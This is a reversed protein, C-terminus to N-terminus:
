SLPILEGILGSSTLYYHAIYNARCYIRGAICIADAGNVKVGYIAPCFVRGVVRNNNFVCCICNFVKLWNIGVANQDLRVNDVLDLFHGRIIVALEFTTPM